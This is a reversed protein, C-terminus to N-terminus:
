LCWNMKKTKFRCEPPCFVPQWCKRGVEGRDQSYRITRYLVPPPPIFANLLRRQQILPHAAPPCLFLRRSLRLEIALVFPQPRDILFKFYRRLELREQSAEHRGSSCHVDDAQEDRVDAPYALLTSLRTLGPLLMCLIGMFLTLTVTSHRSTLLTITHHNHYYIRSESFARPELNLYKPNYSLSLSIPLCHVNKWLGVYFLFSIPTWVYIIITLSASVLLFEFALFFPFSQFHLHTRYVIFSLQGSHRDDDPIKNKFFFFCLGFFAFFFLLIIM